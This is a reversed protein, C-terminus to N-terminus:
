GRRVKNGRPLINGRTNEFLEIAPVTTLEDYTLIGGMETRASIIRGFRKVFYYMFTVYFRTPVWRVHNKGM